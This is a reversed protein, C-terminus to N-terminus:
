KIIIIKQLFSEGKQNTFKLFHVGSNDIELQVNSQDQISLKRVIEGQSSFLTIKGTSEVGFNINVIGNSPNPSAVMTLSNSEQISRPSNKANDRCGDHENYYELAGQSSAISRALHVADGYEDSCLRSIAEIESDLRPNQGVATQGLQDVYKSWVDRMVRVIKEPCDISELDHKISLLERQDSLYKENIIPKLANGATQLERQKALRKKPSRLLGYEKQLRHLDAIEKKLEPQDQSINGIQSLRDVSQMIMHIGCLDIFIPDLAICDPMTLWPRIDFYRIIHTVKILFLNPDNDKLAKIDDWYDCLRSPDGFFTNTGGPGVDELTCQEDSEGNDEYWLDCCPFQDSPMHYTDSEDVFFKSNALDSLFTVPHFFARVSGGHYENGHNMQIGLRSRTVFDFNQANIKHNTELHQSESNHGINLADQTDNIVNCQYWGDSSNQALIGNGNDSSYTENEIIEEGISGMIRIAASGFLNPISSISVYNDHIRNLFSNNTELGYAVESAFIFNDTIDCDTATTLSIGGSSTNQIGSVTINNHAVIQGIDNTQPTIKLKFAQSGRVGYDSGIINNGLIQSTNLRSFHIGVSGYDSPLGISNNIIAIDHNQELTIGYLDYGITSNQITSAHSKYMYISFDNNGFTSGEVTASSNNMMLGVVTNNVELHDINIFNPNNTVRVGYRTESISNHLFQQVAVDGDLLIGYETNSGVGHGMVVLKTIDVTSGPLARVGYNASYIYGEDVILIGGNQVEIGDWRKADPCDQLTASSGSLIVTAGNEIILKKFEGFEIFSTITLTAGTTVIVNGGFSRPSDFDTDIAVHFDNTINCCDQSQHVIIKTPQSFCTNNDYSYYAYYTGPQSVTSPLIPSIGNSNRGDTSWILTAGTPVNGVYFQSLDISGDTCGIYVEDDSLPVVSEEYQLTINDTIFDAFSRVKTYVSPFDGTSTPCGWSAIGVLLRKGEYQVWAPGGSDGKTAGLSETDDDLSIMTNSIGNVICMNMNSNGDVNSIIPMTASHLLAVCAGGLVTNGWGSITAQEGPSIASISNNNTDYNIPQVNSNFCLPSSLHLLAIDGEFEFQSGAWSDHIIIQDVAIRQGINNATQNTSGAHVIIDTPNTGGYVCHAATVIWEANLISGGCLHNGLCSNEIELSVQFPIASIDVNDGGLIDYSSPDEAKIYSCLCM